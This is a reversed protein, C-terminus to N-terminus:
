KRVEESGAGEKETEHNERHRVAAYLMGFFAPWIVFVSPVAALFGKAYSIPPQMPVDKPFGVQEFPVPSLYLWNLGGAEKEGYIHDVYTDPSRLIRQRALKLLDDRRGFTVAGMPCAAACAPKLGDRIRGLCMICKEVKPELASEYDYTPVYFPCAIMCYRCGFCLDENYHVPGEPTKTYAHIPCASACAPEMCHNCQIKRYVVKGGPTEYRNVVTYVGPTTRREEDFVSSDTFPTEPEPLDNAENCAKECSRCGVCLSLDTLMGYSGPYGTFNESGGAKKPHGLVATGGALAMSGLFARRSLGRSRGKGKDKKMRKKEDPTKGM